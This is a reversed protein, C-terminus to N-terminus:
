KLCVGGMKVGVALGAGIRAYRGLVDPSFYDLVALVTAVVLATTAVSQLTMKKGDCLFQCVGGVVLAVVLGETLYKVVRPMLTDLNLTNM